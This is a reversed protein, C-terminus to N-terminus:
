TERAIAKRDRGGPVCMKERDATALEGSPLLDFDSLVAASALSWRASGIFDVDSLLLGTSSVVGSDISLFCDAGVVGNGVGGGGNGNFPTIDLLYVIYKTRRLLIFSDSWKEM